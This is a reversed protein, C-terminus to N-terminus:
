EEYLITEFCSQGVEFLADAAMQDTKSKATLQKFEDLSYRAQFQALTCNCLKNADPETLGEEMSTQLCDKLYKQIYDAPYQHITASPIVPNEEALVLSRDIFSLVIFFSPITVILLKTLKLKM